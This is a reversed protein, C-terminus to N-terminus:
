LEDPNVHGEDILWILLRCAAEAPTKAKCSKLDGSSHTYGVMCKGPNGPADARFVLHHAIEGWWNAKGKVVFKPLISSVLESLTPAAVQLTTDNDAPNPLLKHNMLYPEDDPKKVWYFETDLEVLEALRQCTERTPVLSKNM